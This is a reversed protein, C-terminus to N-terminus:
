TMTSAPPGNCHYSLSQLASLVLLGPEADDLSHIYNISIDEQTPQGNITVACQQLTLQLAM